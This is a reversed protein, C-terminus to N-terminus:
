ACFWKHITLFVDHNPELKKHSFHLLFHLLVVAKQPVIGAPFAVFFMWTQRSFLQQLTCCHSVLFFWSQQKKTQLKAPTECLHWAMWWGRGKVFDAWGDSWFSLYTVYGHNAFIYLALVKKRTVPSYIGDRLCNTVKHQLNLRWGSSIIRLSSVARSLSM